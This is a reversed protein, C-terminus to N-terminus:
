RSSTLAPEFETHHYPVLIGTIDLMWIDESGKYLSHVKAEHPLVVVRNMTQRLPLRQAEKHTNKTIYVPMGAKVEGNVM